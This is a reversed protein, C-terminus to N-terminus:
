KGAEKLEAIRRDIMRCIEPFIEWDIFGRVEELEEIKALREAARFGGIFGVAQAKIIINESDGVCCTIRRALYVDRSAVTKKMFGIFEEKIRENTM